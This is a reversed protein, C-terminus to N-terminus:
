EVGSVHMPAIIIIIIIIIIIVVVVVIVGIYLVGIVLGREGSM